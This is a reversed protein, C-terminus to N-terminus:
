GGSSERRVFVTQVVAQTGPKLGFAVATIRYVVGIAAASAGGGKPAYMMSAPSSLGQSQYQVPEVWYFARADAANTSVLLPNGVAAPDAGTFQGYRAGVLRMANLGTPGGPTTWFQPALNPGSMCIGAICSPLTGATTMMNTLLVIDSDAVDMDGKDHSAPFYIRGGAFDINAPMKAPRCNLFGPTANCPQGDPRQGLIDLEADRVMAHAAELARQYDSDNGTILENFLATRAAWFTMLTTLLVMVLVVFLSVGRQRHLRVPRRPTTDRM